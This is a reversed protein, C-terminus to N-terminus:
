PDLPQEILSIGITASAAGCGLGRSRSMEIEFPSVSMPVARLRRAQAVYDAVL